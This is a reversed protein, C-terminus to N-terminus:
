NHHLVLPHRSNAGRGLVAHRPVLAGSGREESSGAIGASSHWAVLLFVIM